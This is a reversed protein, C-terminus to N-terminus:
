TNGRRESIISCFTNGERIAKRKSKDAGFRHVDYKHKVDLSESFQYIPKIVSPNKVTLYQSPPMPSNYAGVEFTSVMVTKSRQMNSCKQIVEQHKVSM